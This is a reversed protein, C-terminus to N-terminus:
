AAQTWLSLHLALDKQSFPSITPSLALFSPVGCHLTIQFSYKMVKYSFTCSYLFFFTSLPTLSTSGHLFILRVIFRIKLPQLPRVYLLFLYIYDIISVFVCKCIKWHSFLQITKLSDNIMWNIWYSMGISWSIFLHSEKPDLWQIMWEFLM